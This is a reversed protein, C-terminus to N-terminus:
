PQVVLRQNGYILSKHNELYQKYAAGEVSHANRATLDQNSQFCWTGHVIM